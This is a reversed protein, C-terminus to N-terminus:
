VLGPYDLTAFYDRPTEHRRILKYSGDPRFLVEGCRLKGNYNYGMARCHAGADHIVIYDGVDINPLRRDVAFKDNNECLSGVVDYIHDCPLDAKGAVTIHHYASYMAPRILDCATADLGIYNKYTDKKHIVKSVLMGSEATMWRGLETYVKMPHLPTDKILREYDRRVARGVEGIDAEREEPHYAVGIGGSLNIFDVIAGTERYIELALGFLLSAIQPYYDTDVCNSILFAHLGFKEVGLDILRKVCEHIQARTMGFKSDQPHGMVFNSAVQTSGPNYRLCLRKPIGGNERLFDIHSIDDLNITADLERALRYECGPTQNSSFMIREGRLGMAKALMLETRSACDVGCGRRTMIDIVYPNPTAKVAFYERFGPNWSFAESLRRAHDDIVSEDYLYFPTGVDDAIRKILSLDPTHKQSM